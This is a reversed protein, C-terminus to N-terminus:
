AITDGLGSKAKGFGKLCFIGGYLLVKLYHDFGCATPIPPRYGAQHSIVQVLEKAGGRNEQPFETLHAFRGM